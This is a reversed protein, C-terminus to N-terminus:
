CLIDSDPWIAGQHWRRFAALRGRVHALRQLMAVKLVERERDASLREVRLEVALSIGPSPGRRIVALETSRYTRREPCCTALNM